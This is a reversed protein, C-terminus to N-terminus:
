QLRGEMEEGGHDTPQQPQPPAPGAEPRGATPRSDPRRHEVPTHQHTHGSTAAAAEEGTALAAPAEEQKPKDQTARPTGRCCTNTSCSPLTPPPPQKSPTRRSPAAPAPTQEWAHGGISTPEERLCEPGSMRMTKKESGSMTPWKGGRRNRSNTGAGKSFRRRFQQRLANGGCASTETGKTTPSPSPPAAPEEGRGRSGAATAAAPQQTNVAGQGGRQRAGESAATVATAPSQHTPPPQTATDPAMSGHDDTPPQRSAAGRGGATTPQPHAHHSQTATHPTTRTTQQRNRADATAPQQHTPQPQTKGCTSGCQQRSCSTPSM